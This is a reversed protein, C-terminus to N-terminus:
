RRTHEREAETQERCLRQERIHVVPIRRVFLQHSGIPGIVGGQVEGMAVCRNLRVGACLGPCGVVMWAFSGGTLRVVPLVGTMAHVRVAQERCEPGHRLERSEVNCGRNRKSAVRQCASVAIRLETRGDGSGRGRRQRGVMVTPANEDAGRPRGMQPYAM